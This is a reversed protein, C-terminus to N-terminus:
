PATDTVDPVILKVELTAGPALAAWRGHLDRIRARIRELEVDTLARPAPQGSRQAFAKAQENFEPATWEVSGARELDLAGVLHEVAIAGAPIPGRAGKGTTDDINWGTAILGYFASAVGLEVEVAYHTLDHLPFFGAQRGEHRQWTSSGDARQCRLVAGGDAQKTLQIILNATTM